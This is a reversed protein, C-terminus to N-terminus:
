PNQITGMFLPETTQTDRIVFFFPKNVEMYFRKDEQPGGASTISAGVSTVAAAETGEENVDIYTKHKVESIFLNDGIGTFDASNGFATGMGLDTLLKNLSKDYEMKFKPLLLTGEKEQYKTTWESWTTGNLSQVFSSLDKKPLFIDMALRKNEGYPLSVSQFDDNEFYPMTDNRYMLPTKERKGNADTFDKDETLDKNFTTTWSGKFYVANILYLVANSPLPKPVISNIKGKTNTDVWDNITDSSDPSSFNLESAEANYDAKLTDLFTQKPSLGKKIWASNAISLEVKPDPNKLSNILASSEKNVTNIDINQFQLTKQMDTKTNGEAGNYLMSLALSISAPSIFINKDKDDQSLTKLANFGFVAHAMPLSTIDVPQEITPAQSSQPKTKDQSKWLFYGATIGGTVLLIILVVLLLPRRNSEKPPPTAFENINQPIQPPVTDNNM